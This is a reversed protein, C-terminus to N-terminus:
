SRLVAMDEALQRLQRLKAGYMVQTILRYVSWGYLGLIFALLAYLGAVHYWPNNKIFQLYEPSNSYLWWSIAPLVALPVGWFLLRSYHQVMLQVAQLYQRVYHYVSQNFQVQRLARMMRVNYAYLGALLLASYTALYWYGFYGFGAFMIAAILWLSWNDWKQTQQIRAVVIKSKRRYLGEVKPAISEQEKWINEISRKM